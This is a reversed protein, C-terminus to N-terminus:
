VYDGFGNQYEILGLTHASFLAAGTAAEEKVTSLSVQMQFKDALVRRLTENRRVAGGSAVAYLRREGIGRYLAYLEDCMGHIVGLILSSPTLNHLEIDKVSGRRQPDTRTGCFSTDVSLPTEGGEYAAKALRNMVTYQPAEGGGCASAYAGFFRELMAYAAGGCLAAGCVLTEGNILPRVEIGDGIVTPDAVASIQSGTGINVLISERNNKVSGLFSAQNDGIAVSVPIGQWTGVSKSEGTVVPLFTKDIGLTALRDFCFGGARVDFLGFSAAVSAHTIPAHMGCLRMVFYDMISCFGVADQPVLRKQLNYYHTAIGYGTMIRAGTLREIRQCASMGDEMCFDARKDQWNILESVARGERNLYLIGHMQGTVGICTIKRYSRCILELLSQAKDVIVAVSQESSIADEVYSSHPISFVEVQTHGELDIVAASITTTGIDIGVAFSGSERTLPEDRETFPAGTDDEGRSIREVLTECFRYQESSRGSETDIEKQRKEIVEELSLFGSFLLKIDTISVGAARLLKIKKLILIDNESYDRYRNDGRHVTILGRDEYLRIAKKTLGTKKEVENIKM